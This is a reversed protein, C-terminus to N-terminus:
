KLKSQQLIGAPIMTFGCNRCFYKQRKRAQGVANSERGRAAMLSSCSASIATAAADCPTEKSKFHMQIRKILETNNCLSHRSNSMEQFQKMHGLDSSRRTIKKMNVTVKTTIKKPTQNIGAQSVVNELRKNVIIPISHEEQKNVSEKIPLDASPTFFFETDTQTGEHVSKHLNQQPTFFEDDDGSRSTRRIAGTRGPTLESNKNNASYTSEIIKVADRVSTRVPIIVNEDNDYQQGRDNRITTDFVVSRDSRQKQIVDSLMEPMMPYYKKNIDMQNISSNHLEMNNVKILPSKNNAPSFLKINISDNKQEMNTLKLNSLSADLDNHHIRINVNFQKQNQKRIDLDPSNNIDKKGKNECSRTRRRDEDSNKGGSPKRNDSLWANRRIKNQRAIPTNPLSYDGIAFSYSSSYCNDSESRKLTEQNRETIPLEDFSCSRDNNPVKSSVDNFKVSQQRQHEKVVESLFDIKNCNQALNDLERNMKAFEDNVAQREFLEKVSKKPENTPVKLRKKLTSTREYIVDKDIKPTHLRNFDFFSQYMTSNTLSTKSTEMEEQERRRTPKKPAIVKQDEVSKRIRDLADDHLIGPQHSWSVVNAEMESSKISDSIIKSTDRITMELIDASTIANEVRRHHDANADYAVPKTFYIKESIKENMKPSLLNISAEDEIVPQRYLQEIIKPKIKKHGSKSSDYDLENLMDVFDTVNSTREGANILLCKEFIELVKSCERNLIPLQVNQKKYADALEDHNYIVFPVCRNLAEWVMLSLAFTDSRTTPLVHEASMDYTPMMLEPPQYYHMSFQRRYEITYPLRYEDQYIDDTVFKSNRNYFNQKSLKLYREAILLDVPSDM